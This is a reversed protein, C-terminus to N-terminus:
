RRTINTVLVNWTGATKGLELAVQMVHHGTSDDYTFDYTVFATSLNVEFRSFCYYFLANHAMIEPLSAFELLKGNYNVGLNDPIIAVGPLAYLTVPVGFMDFNIYPNVEPIRISIQLVAAQDTQSQGWSCVAGLLLTFILLYRKMPNTKYQKSKKNIGIKKM